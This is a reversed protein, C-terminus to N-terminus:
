RHNSSTNAESVRSEFPAGSVEFQVVVCVEGGGLFIFWIVFYLVLFSKREGDLVVVM